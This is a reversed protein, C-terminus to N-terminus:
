LIKELMQLIGVRDLLAGWELHSLDPTVFSFNEIEGINSFDEKIYFFKGGHKQEFNEAWAYRTSIIKLGMACYELLKTSTQVNFPYIDPIFNIAYACQEILAPVELYGVRGSFTINRCHKFEDQIGDMPEGVLLITRDTNAIGKLLKHLGRERFISGSYAFDYKKVQVPRHFFLKNVGMERELYPVDDNFAFGDRVRKDTFIRFKPKPQLYRKMLDKVRPFKGTSLSMYEHICPKDISRPYFGMFQWVLDASKIVESNKDSTAEVVYKGQTSLYDYYGHYDPYYSNGPYLFIIKKSM